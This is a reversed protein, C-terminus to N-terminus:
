PRPCGLKAGDHDRCVVLVSQDSGEQGKPGVKQMQGGHPQNLYMWDPRAVDEDKTGEELDDHERQPGASVLDLGHSSSRLM